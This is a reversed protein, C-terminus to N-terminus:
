SATSGGRCTMSSCSRSSASSIDMRSSTMGLSALALALALALAAAGAGAVGDDGAALRSLTPTGVPVVM